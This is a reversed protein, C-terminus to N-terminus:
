RFFIIFCCSIKMTNEFLLSFERLIKLCESEHDVLIVRWETNSITNIQKKSSKCCKKVFNSGPMNTDQCQPQTGLEPMIAMLTPAGVEQISHLVYDVSSSERVKFM